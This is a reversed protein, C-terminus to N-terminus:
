VEGREVGEEPDWVRIGRQRERARASERERVRAREHEKERERAGERASEREGGEGRDCV